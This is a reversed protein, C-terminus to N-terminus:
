AEIQEIDQYEETGIPDDEDLRGESLDMNEYIKLAETETEAKVFYYINFKQTARVRWRPM